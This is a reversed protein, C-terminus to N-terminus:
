LCLEKTAKAIREAKEISESSTNAYVLVYIKLKPETGSPRICVFQRNKLEFYIVDSEPMAIMESHDPYQRIGKMYDSVSLVKEDDLYAIQLTRLKSMVQAMDSMGSLGKYAITLNKETYYGYKEFIEILRGYVTKGISEYYIMMEAFLMSGVVADKDRAHTGRLTGFSEEFGFIYQYKGDEEWEKIKEGIFKFGTLVNFPKAGYSYAIRDALTTSVISKVVAANQPLSKQETLRLLIYDLLLIGIQNGTLLIFKGESNRIAVGLRDCDPDTGLVVDASIKEGEEIGLKLTDASEPNPVNVTSFETDPNAQSAVVTANIGLRKFITTVPIYGTGHIPTYVLKINAGFKATIEPSLSLKIITDYYASDVQGGIVTVNPTIAKDSKGKYEYINLITTHPLSFYDEIKSIYNVVNDTSNISMQAGDDGYVKYGNYEKPNHSATIMVGAFAKYYRIAFSCIPVPRVDEFILAKINSADLVEAVAFAFERSMRRTDYAIVVGQDMASQGCSIIYKALGYTARRVTYVNMRSTGLAVEGRMGATGFALDVEFREAIEHANGRIAELEHKEDSAVGNLWANYKTLNTM